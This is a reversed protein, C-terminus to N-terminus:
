AAKGAAIRHMTSMEVHYGNVVWNYSLPELRSILRPFVDRGYREADAKTKWFTISVFQTPDTDQFLQVIDVCGPQKLLEPMVSENLLQAFEAKRGPKITAQTVRSYM